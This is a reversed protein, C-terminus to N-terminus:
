QPPIAPDTGLLLTNFSIGGGGFSKALDNNGDDGRIVKAIHAVANAQESPLWGFNRGTLTGIVLDEITPFEGDFHFIQPVDRTLTANVLLPSNRPTTLLGDARTSLPATARLIAIHESTLARDRSLSM